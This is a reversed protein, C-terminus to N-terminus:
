TRFYLLSVGCRRVPAMTSSTLIDFDSPALSRLADNDTAIKFGRSRLHRWHGRGVEYMLTRAVCAARASPTRDMVNDYLRFDIDNGRNHEM